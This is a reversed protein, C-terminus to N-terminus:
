TARATRGSASLTAVGLLVIAAGAWQVTSLREDFFVVGWGIACVPQFLLLVSTEVAPLRPLATAICLWGIVQSVLALLFLWLHATGSVALAFQPDFPVSLLAGAVTGATADFLPGATPALVRNSRRFLLLFVAYSLGAGIGLTVGRVPAQGYADGRALGSTLTVGVLVLGVLGLTKGSPREGYVLWGVLAVFVIQVNPIVTGLGAGVLAISEHWLNLDGALFLGSVFALLRDRSTRRDAGRGAFWLLALVPLAYAGRYFTATVPSVLALRIFVASFSISVVGLLALLHIM